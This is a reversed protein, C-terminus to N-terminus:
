ETGANSFHGSDGSSVNVTKNSIAGSEGLHNEMRPNHNETSTLVKQNDDESSARRVFARELWNETELRLQLQFACAGKRNGATAPTVKERGTRLTSETRNGRTRKSWRTPYKGCNPSAWARRISWNSNSTSRWSTRCGAKAATRLHGPDPGSHFGRKFYSFSKCAFKRKGTSRKSGSGTTRCKPNPKWGATWTAQGETRIASSRLKIYAPRARRRDSKCKRGSRKPISSNTVAARDSISIWKAECESELIIEAACLLGSEEAPAELNTGTGTITITIIIIIRKATPTESVRPGGGRGTILGTRASQCNAKTTRARGAAIGGISTIM